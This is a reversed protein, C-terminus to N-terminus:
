IVNAEEPLENGSWDIEQSSTDSAPDVEAEDDNDPEDGESQWVSSEDDGNMEFNPGEAELQDKVIAVLDDFAQDDFHDVLKSDALKDAKWHDIDMDEVDTTPAPGVVYVTVYHVNSDYTTTTANLADDLVHRPFPCLIDSPDFRTAGAVAPDCSSVNYHLIRGAERMEIMSSPKAFADFVPLQQWDPLEGDPLENVITNKIMLPVQLKDVNEENDLLTNYELHITSFSTYNEFNPYLMAYGRLYILEILYRKWSQEWNNSQSGPVQIDQLNKGNQDLLRTTIYDHFEQWHEPFYVAGWSCPIQLLYPSNPAYLTPDMMENPAFPQRGELQLETSSPSYLSVGFMMKNEDQDQKYRYKLISFKAWIYFYPSVEINEELFIAYENANSPYWSEVVATMVGAQKIRHRVTKDGYKWVLNEVLVKTIKDATREINVTLKVSDGLYHARDLSRILRSFANPRTNAILILNIDILNWKELTDIPLTAMWTIHDLDKPPIQIFTSPIDLDLNPMDSWVVSGLPHIILRPQLFQLLTYVAPIRQTESMIDEEESWGTSRLSDLHIDHLNEVDCDTQNKLASVSFMQALDQHGTNVLHVVRERQIFACMLPTISELEELSNVLFAVDVPSNTVDTLEQVETVLAHQNRSLVHYWEQNFTYEEKRQRCSLSGQEHMTRTHERIDGWFAQDIPNIPLAITVIGARNLTLSIRFGTPVRFLDPTTHAMIVPIWEHRLLWIDTLMDVAVSMNPLEGAEIAQPLCVMDDADAMTINSSFPLITGETGILAHRYEDTQSLRLLRDLYRVGPQVGNTLIWIYKTTALNAISLWNREGIHERIFVQFGMYDPVSQRSVAKPLHVDGDIVLWLHEPHVTQSLVADVQSRVDISSDISLIATVSV